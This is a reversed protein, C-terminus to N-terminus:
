TVYKLQTLYFTEVNSIYKASVSTVGCSWHLM